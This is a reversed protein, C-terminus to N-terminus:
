LEQFFSPLYKHGIAPSAQEAKCPSPYLHVCCVHNTQVFHAHTSVGLVYPMGATVSQSNIAM